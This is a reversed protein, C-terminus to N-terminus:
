KRKKEKVEELIEALKIQAEAEVKKRYAREIEEQYPLNLIKALTPTDIDGRQWFAELWRQMQQLDIPSATYTKIEIRFDYPFDALLFEKDNIRIKEDCFVRYLQATYTFIDELVSAIRHAIERFIQSAFAALISMATSTRVGRAEGMVIEFLGTIYKIQENLFGLEEYLEAPTSAPPNASIRADRDQVILNGMPKWLEELDSRIQEKSVNMGTIILPPQARVKTIYDIIELIENRKKQIFEILEIVSFGLCSGQIPYPAIIFFPHRLLEWKEHKVIRNISPLIVFKHWCDKDTYYKENIWLEVVEHLKEGDKVEFVETELKEPQYLLEAKIKSVPIMEYRGSSSPRAAEILRIEEEIDVGFLKRIKQPTMFTKHGLVQQPDDIDFSEYLVGFNCINLEKYIVGGNKWYVKVPTFGYILANRVADRMEIDLRNYTYFNDKIIQIFNDLLKQQEETLEIRKKFVPQVILNEPTFVLSAMLNIEGFLRKLQFGPTDTGHYYYNRYKEFLAKRENERFFVKRSLELIKEEELFLKAM